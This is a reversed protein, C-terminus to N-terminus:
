ENGDRLRFSSSSVRRLNAELRSSDVLLSACSLAGERVGWSPDPELFGADDDVEFELGSSEAYAEMELEAGVQM